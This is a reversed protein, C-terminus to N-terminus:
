VFPGSERPQPVQIRVLIVQDLTLRAATAGNGLTWRNYIKCNKRAKDLGFPRKRLAVANAANAKQQIHRDLERSIGLNKSRVCRVPTRCSTPRAVSTLALVGNKPPRARCPRVITAARNAFLASFGPCRRSAASLRLLLHQRGTRKRPRCLM